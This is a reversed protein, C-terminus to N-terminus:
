SIIILITVIWSAILYLLLPLLDLIDEKDMPDEIIINRIRKIFSKTKIYYYLANIEIFLGLFSVIIIALELKIGLIRLLTIFAIFVSPLTIIYNEIHRLSNRLENYFNLAMGKDKTKEIKKIIEEMKM